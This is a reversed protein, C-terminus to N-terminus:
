QDMQVTNINILYPINKGPIRCDNFNIVNNVYGRHSVCDYGKAVEVGKKNIFITSPLGRLAFKYPLKNSFDFYTDLNSIELEEFFQVSKEVSERGVNIPFIKLNDLRKNLLLLDLSPM